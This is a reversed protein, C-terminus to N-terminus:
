HLVQGQETPRPEQGHVADDHGTGRRSRPGIASRALLAVSAAGLLLSAPSRKRLAYWALAGGGALAVGRWAPPLAQLSAPPRIANGAGQLAPIGNAHEHLELLDRVERVGAVRAVEALLQPKEHTLIPGGLTVCGQAADVTVAHPHTVLRGLRARVRAQLIDDDPPKGQGALRRWQALVGQWRNGADRGGAELWSGTRTGVRRLAQGAQKRRRRGRDPDLLFMALAGVAAAALAAQLSKSGPSTSLRNPGFSMANEGTNFL